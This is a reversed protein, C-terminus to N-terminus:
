LFVDFYRSLFTTLNKKKKKQPGDLKRTGLRHSTKKKAAICDRFPVNKKSQRIRRQEVKSVFTAAFWASVKKARCKNYRFHRMQTAATCVLRALQVDGDVAFLRCNRARNSDNTKVRFMERKKLLDLIIADVITRSSSLLLACHYRM